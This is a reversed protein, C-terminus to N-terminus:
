AALRLHGNTGIEVVPIGEAALRDTDHTIWVRNASSLHQQVFALLRSSEDDTLGALPEDLVVLKTGTVACRALAVLKRQLPTLQPIRSDPTIAEQQMSLRLAEPLEYGRLQLYDGVIARLINDEVAQFIVQPGAAGFRRRLSAPSTLGARPDLILVEGARPKELGAALLGLTSKGSGNPGALVLDPELPIEMSTSSFVPVDVFDPYSFSCNRLVIQSPDAAHRVTPLSMAPFRGSSSTSPGWTGNLNIHLRKAGDLDYDRTTLLVLPNDYLSLAKFVDQRWVDSLWSLCDLLVLYDPRSALAVSLALLQKEGGSLQYIPRRLLPEPVPLPNGPAAHDVGLLAFEDLGTATLFWADPDPPVLLGSPPLELESFACGAYFLPNELRLLRERLLTPYNMAMVASRWPSPVLRALVYALAYLAEGRAATVVAREKRNVTFGLKGVLIEGARTKLSLDRVCLRM